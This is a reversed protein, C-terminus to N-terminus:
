VALPSALAGETEAAGPRQRKGANPLDISCFGKGAFEPAQNAAQKGRKFTGVSPRTNQAPFEASARCFGRAVGGNLIILQLIKTSRYKKEQLGGTCTPGTRYGASSSPPGRSAADGGKGAVQGSGPARELRSASNVMASFPAAQMSMASWGSSNLSSFFGFAMISRRRTGGERQRM